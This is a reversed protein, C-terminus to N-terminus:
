EALRYRKTPSSLENETFSKISLYLSVGAMKYMDETHKLYVIRNKRVQQYDKHKSLKEILLAQHKQYKERTSMWHIKVKM